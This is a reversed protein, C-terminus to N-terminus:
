GSRWGGMWWRPSEDIGRAADRLARGRPGFLARAEEDSLSAIDGIETFAAISLIRAMAPGIGPLLLADQPALFSAEDGERICTIGDPRISRTGVKAVLKNRAVAVTPEIGIKQVIENRIRVACDVHPGFLRGTGALDLFLHGGSDNQVLPAYCSVIKEMEENAKAYSLADSQLVLLGRIRREAASLSMGVSLGEERARRSVDLVISRASSSGAIVFAKDALSRDQALAVSAPFDIVNLHM